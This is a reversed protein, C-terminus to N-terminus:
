VQHHSALAHPADGPKGFTEPTRIPRWQKGPGHSMGLICVEETGPRELASREFAMDHGSSLGACVSRCRLVSGLIRRSPGLRRHHVGSVLEAIPRAADPIPLPSLRARYRGYVGCSVFLLETADPRCAIASFIM